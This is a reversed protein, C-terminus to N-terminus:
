IRFQFNPDTKQPNCKWFIELQFKESLVEAVFLSSLEKMMLLLPPVKEVVCM